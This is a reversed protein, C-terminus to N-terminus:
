SSAIHTQVPVDFRAQLDTLLGDERYALDGDHHRFVVIQDPEFTSLMDQSAVLPDAEGTDGSTTVGGADLQRVSEDASGM